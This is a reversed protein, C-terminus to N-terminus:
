IKKRWTRAIPALVVALAIFPFAFLKQFLNGTVTLELYRRDLWSDIAPSFMERKM